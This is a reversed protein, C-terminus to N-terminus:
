DASPSSVSPGYGTTLPNHTDSPVGVGAGAQAATSTGAIMFFTIIRTM